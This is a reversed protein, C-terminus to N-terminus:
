KHPSNIILAILGGLVAILIIAVMGYVINKVPLFEDKTVYKDDLKEKIEAIDRQIYKISTVVGGENYHENDQIQQDPDSMPTPTHTVQSTLILSQTYHLRIINIYM